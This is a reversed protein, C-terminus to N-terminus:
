FALVIQGADSRVAAEMILPLRSGLASILGIVLMNALSVGLRDVSLVFLIAGFGWAFGFGAAAVVASRPAEAHLVSWDGITISVMVAPMLLCSTLIFILWINEWRWRPIMKM